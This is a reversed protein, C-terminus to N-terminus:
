ARRPRVTRPFREATPVRSIREPECWCDRRPAIEPDLKRRDALKYARRPLPPGISGPSDPLTRGPRRPPRRPLLTDLRAAFDSSTVVEPATKSEPTQSAPLLRWPHLPPM